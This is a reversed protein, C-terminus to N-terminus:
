ARTVHLLRGLLNSSSQFKLGCYSHCPLEAPTQGGGKMGESSPEVQFVQLAEYLVNRSLFLSKGRGLRHICSFHWTCLACWTLSIGQKPLLPCWGPVQVVYSALRPPSTMPMNTFTATIIKKKLPSFGWLGWFQNQMKWHSNINIHLDM